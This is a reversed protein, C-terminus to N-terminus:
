KVLEQVSAWLKRVEDIDTADTYKIGIKGEEHHLNRFKTEFFEKATQIDTDDGQYEPFHKRISCTGSALKTEFEDVHTFVLLKPVDKFYRSNMISGVFVLDEHM